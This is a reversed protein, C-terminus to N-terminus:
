RPGTRTLHDSTMSVPLTQYSASAQRATGSTALAGGIAGAALLAAGSLAVLLYRISTQKRLNGVIM